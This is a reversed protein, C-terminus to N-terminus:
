RSIGATAAGIRLACTGHLDTGHKGVALGAFHNRLDGIRPGSGVAEPSDVVADGIKRVCLLDEAVPRAPQAVRESFSCRRRLRATRSLLKMLSVSSRGFAENFPAALPKM